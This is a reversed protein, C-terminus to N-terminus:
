RNPLYLHVSTLSPGGDTLQITLGSACRGHAYKSTETNDTPHFPVQPISASAGSAADLTVVALGGPFSAPALIALTPSIVSAVLNVKM